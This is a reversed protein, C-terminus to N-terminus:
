KKQLAKRMAITKLNIIIGLYIGSKNIIIMKEYLISEFSLGNIGINIWHYSWKGETIM